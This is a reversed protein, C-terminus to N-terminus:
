AGQWDLFWGRALAHEAGVWERRREARQADLRAEALLFDDPSATRFLAVESASFLKEAHRYKNEDEMVELVRLIVRVREERLETQETSVV